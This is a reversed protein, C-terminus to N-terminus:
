ADGLSMMDQAISHLIYDMASKKSPRLRVSEFKVQVPELYELSELVTIYRKLARMDMELARTLSGLAIGGMSEASYIHLLIHWSVESISGLPLLFESRTVHQRLLCHAMDTNTLM